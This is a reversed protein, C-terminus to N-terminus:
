NRACAAIQSAGSWSRVKTKGGEERLDVRTDSSAGDPWILTVEGPRDPQRYTVAVGQNDMDILCREIESVSRSSVFEGKPPRNDFKSIPGLLAIVLLPLMPPM